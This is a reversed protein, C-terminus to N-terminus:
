WSIVPATYAACTSKTITWLRSSYDLNSEEWCLGTPFISIPMKTCEDTVATTIHPKHSKELSGFVRFSGLRGPWSMRSWPPLHPRRPLHSGPTDVFSSMVGNGHLCEHHFSLNPSWGLVSFSALAGLVIVPSAKVVWRALEPKIQQVGKM